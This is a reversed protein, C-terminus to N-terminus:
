TCVRGDDERGRDAGSSEQMHHIVTRNVRLLQSKHPFCRPFSSSLFAVGHNTFTCIAVPCPTVRGSGIPLVIRPGLFQGFIWRLIITAENLCVGTM